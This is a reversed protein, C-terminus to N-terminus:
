SCQAQPRCKGAHTSGADMSRQQSHELLRAGRILRGSGDASPAEATWLLPALFTPRRGGRGFIITARLAALMEASDVGDTFGAGLGGPVVGLLGALVVVRPEVGFFAAGRFVESSVSQV